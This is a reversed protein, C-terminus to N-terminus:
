RSDNQCESCFWLFSPESWVGDPIPLPYCNAHYWKDCQDCKVMEPQSSSYPLKCVCFLPLNLTSFPAPIPDVVSFDLLDVNGVEIMTLCMQRLQQTYVVTEPNLGFCLTIANAIAFVGCDSGNGQQQVRPFLVKLTSSCPRNSLMGISCLTEDNYASSNYASDYVCIQGDACTGWIHRAQLSVIAVRCTCQYCNKWTYWLYLNLFCLVEMVFLSARRSLTNELYIKKTPM